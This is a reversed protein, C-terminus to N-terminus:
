RILLYVAAVEVAAVLAILAWTAVERGSSPRQGAPALWFQIQAAGLTAVDGSRLAATAASEGNIVGCVDTNFIAELRLDSGLRLELHKNWVGEDPLVLDCDTGRGIVFPFHRAVVETGAMRGALVKLQLM